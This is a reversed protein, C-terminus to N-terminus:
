PNGSEITSDHCGVVALKAETGALDAVPSRRTQRPRSARSGLGENALHMLCDAARAAVGVSQGPRPLRAPPAIRPAPACLHRRSQFAPAPPAPIRAADAGARPPNRHLRPDHLEIRLTARRSPPLEYAALRHVRMQAIQLTIADGAVALLALDIGGVLVNGITRGKEVPAALVAVLEAEDDGGLFAHLQGVKALSGAIQHGLHFRVKACPEVPDRDIVVVGAMRVGMNQHAAHGILAFPEVDGPIVDGVTDEFPGALDDRQLQAALRFLLDVALKFALHISLAEGPEVPHQDGLLVRAVLKGIKAGVLIHGLGHPL